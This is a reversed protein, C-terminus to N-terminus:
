YAQIWLKGRRVGIVMELQFLATQEIIEGIAPPLNTPTMGKGLTNVIRSICVADILIQIRNLIYM